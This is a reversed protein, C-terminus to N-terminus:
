LGLFEGSNKLCKKKEFYNYNNDSDKTTDKTIYEYAQKYFKQQVNICHENELNKTFYSKLDNIDLKEFVILHSHVVGSKHLEFCGQVIPQHYTQIELVQKIYDRQSVRNNLIPFKAPDFTITILYCHEGPDIYDIISLEKYLNINQIKKSYEFPFHKLLNKQISDKSQYFSLLKELEDVKDTLQKNTMELNSLKNFAYGGNLCMECMQPICTNVSFQSNKVRM